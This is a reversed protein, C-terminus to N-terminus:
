NRSPFVGQLAVIFNIALFPPMNEHSQGGGTFSTPAMLTDADNMTSYNNEGDNSVSPRAANPTKTNGVNTSGVMPHSHSPIQSTNLVVNQVGGKQGLQRPTLGPGTSGGESGIPFRGRLDPLGFTTRGDGGYTTGMLSFVASYQSIPLLQGSCYAWGRPAFNGAFMTIQALFPDSM